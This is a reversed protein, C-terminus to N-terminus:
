AELKEELVRVKEKLVWTWWAHGSDMGGHYRWGLMERKAVVERGAAIRERLGLVGPAARFDRYELTKYEAYLVHSEGECRECLGGRGVGTWGECRTGDERLARCWGGDTVRGGGEAACRADLRRALSPGGGDPRAQDKFAAVAAARAEALEAKARALEDPRIDRHKGGARLARLIAHATSLRASVALLAVASVPKTPAAAPKTAAAAPKTAAVAPKTAAVALKTAPQHEQVPSPTRPPTPPLGNIAPAPSLSRPGFPTFGPSFDPSGKFASTAVPALFFGAPFKPLAPVIPAAVPKPLAPAVPAAVPKPLAPVITAAVRKAPPGPTFSAAAPRLSAAASSAAPALPASSPVFAATTGSLPTFAAATGSLPTFAAAAGSLPTFAAAAGSLPTFAAAAASLVITATM